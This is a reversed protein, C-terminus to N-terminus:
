ILHTCGTPEDSDPARPAWELVKEDRDDKRFNIINIINIRKTLRKTTKGTTGLTITITQDSLRVALVLM